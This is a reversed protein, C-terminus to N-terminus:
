RGARAFRFQPHASNRLRKAVVLDEIRLILRELRREQCKSPTRRFARVLLARALTWETLTLSLSATAGSPQTALEVTQALIPYERLLLRREVDSLTLTASTETVGVPALSAFGGVVLPVCEFWFKAGDRRSVREIAERADVLMRHMVDTAPKRGMSGWAM